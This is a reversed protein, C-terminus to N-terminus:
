QTVHRLTELTKKKYNEVSNQGQKFLNSNSQPFITKKAEKIVRKLVNRYKKYRDRVKIIIIIIIIIIEIVLDNSDSPIACWIDSCKVRELTLCM